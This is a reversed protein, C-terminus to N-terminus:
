EPTGGVEVGVVTFKGDIMEYGIDLDHIYEGEKANLEGVFKQPIYLKKDYNEDVGRYFDDGEGMVVYLGHEDRKVEGTEQGFIWPDGPEWVGVKSPKKDTKTTDDGPTIGRGKGTEATPEVAGMAEMPDETMEEPPTFALPSAMASNYAIASGETNKNVFPNKANFAKNFKGM